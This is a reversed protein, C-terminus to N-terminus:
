PRNKHKARWTNAVASTWPASSARNWATSTLALHSTPNLCSKSRYYPLMVAFVGALVAIWFVNQLGISQELHWTDILLYGTGFFAIVFTLLFLNVVLVFTGIHGRLTRWIAFGVLVSLVCAIGFWKAAELAKDGLEYTLAEVM